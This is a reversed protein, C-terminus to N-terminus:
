GDKKELPDHSVMNKWAMEETYLSAMFGLSKKLEPYLAHHMILTDWEYNMVPLGVERYLWDADYAFNQGIKKNPLRFLARLLKWVRVEDRPNWYSGGPLSFETFPICIAEEECFSLGVSRILRQGPYTEIDISIEQEPRLKQFFDWVDEVTEPIYINRPIRRLERFEAERGAKMLDAVMIPRHAWNAVLSEPSYTCLVKQGAILRCETIFGRISEINSGTLWQSVETGLGLIVNPKQERILRLLENLEPLLTPHFYDTKGVKLIELERPSLDWGKLDKKKCLFLKFNEFPPAHNILYRRYVKGWSLGGDRFAHILVSAPGSQFCVKNKIDQHHPARGLVWLSAEPKGMFKVSPYNLVKEAPLM